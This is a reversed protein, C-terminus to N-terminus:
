ADLIQKYIRQATLFESCTVITGVIVGLIGHSNINQGTLFLNPIKTKHPVRYEMTKNVDKVVGYMSGKETGTYDQYTLPTSTYYDIIKDKLDPFHHYLLCIMKNAKDKKFQEYDAGRHGVKTGTWILM